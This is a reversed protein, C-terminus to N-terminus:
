IINKVICFQSIIYRCIFNYRREHEKMLIKHCFVLFQHKIDENKLVFYGNTSPISSENWHTGSSIMLRRIATYQGFMTGCHLFISISKGCCQAALLNWHLDLFTEFDAWISLKNEINPNPNYLLSSDRTSVFKNVNRVIFYWPSINHLLKNM